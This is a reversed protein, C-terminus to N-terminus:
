VIPTAKLAAKGAKVYVSFQVDKCKQKQLIASRSKDVSAKFKDFTLGEVSEGCQVKTSRFDNFLKRLDSERKESPDVKGQAAELLDGPIPVVRTPEDYGEPAAEELADMDLPQPEAMDLPAAAAAAARSLAASMPPTPAPPPLRGPLPSAALPAAPLPSPSPSLQRMLVAPPPVSTSSPLAFPPPPPAVPIAPPAGAGLIGLDVRSPAAVPEAAKRADEEDDFGAIPQGGLNLGGATPGLIQAVEPGSARAAGAVAKVTKDMAANVDLAIQRYKGRFQYANFRDNEKGKLIAAQKRFYMLPRDRELFIWLMALVFAGLCIAVIGGVPVKSLGQKSASKLVAWPSAVAVVPRLVMYGAGGRVAEGRIPAFVGRFGQGVAVIPRAKDKAYAMWDKAERSVTKVVELPDVEAVPAKADATQTSTVRVSKAVVKGAAFFFLQANLRSGERIEEAFENDIERGLIIAGLYKGQHVVPRGAIQYLYPKGKIRVLWIDDREFGRLVARISPFGYLGFETGGAEPPPFSGQGGVVEGRRNLALLFPQRLEEVKTKLLDGLVGKVVGIQRRIQEENMPVAAGAPAASAPGGPAAAAAAPAAEPPALVSLTALPAMAERLPESATIESLRDLHERAQLKLSSQVQAFDGQVLDDVNQRLGANMSDQLLYMVALVLGVAAALLFFWFRTVFM